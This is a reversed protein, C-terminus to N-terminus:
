AKRKMREIMSLQTVRMRELAKELNVFEAIGASAIADELKGKSM